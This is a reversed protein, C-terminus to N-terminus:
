FKLNQLPNQVEPVICSGSWQTVAEPELMLRHPMPPVRFCTGFYHYLYCCPGQVWASWVERALCTPSQQFTFVDLGWAAKKILELHAPVKFKVQVAPQSM